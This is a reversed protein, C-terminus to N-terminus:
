KNKEEFLECMGHERESFIGANKGEDVFGLCVWGLRDSIRGKGISENWPHCNIPKQHQCKCCCESKECNM